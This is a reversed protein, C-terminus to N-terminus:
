GERKGDKRILAGGREDDIRGEREWGDKNKDEGM